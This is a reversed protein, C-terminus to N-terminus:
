NTLKSVYKNLVFYNPTFVDDGDGTPPRAGDGDWALLHTWNVLKGVIPGKRFLPRYM